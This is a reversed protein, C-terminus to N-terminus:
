LTSNKLTHFISTTIDTPKKAEQPEDFTSCAKGAAPIENCGWKSGPDPHKIKSRGQVRM